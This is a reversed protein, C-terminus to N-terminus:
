TGGSSTGGSGLAAVHPTPVNIGRAEEAEVPLGDSRRDHDTREHRDAGIHQELDDSGDEEFLVALGELGGHADVGVPHERADGDGARVLGERPVADRAEEGHETDPVADVTEELRAGALASLLVKMGLVAM